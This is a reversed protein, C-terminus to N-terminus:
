KKREGDSIRKVVLVVIVSLVMLGFGLAAWRWDGM